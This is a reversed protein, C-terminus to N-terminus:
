LNLFKSNTLIGKNDSIIIIYYGKSLSSIDLRSNTTGTINKSIVQVGDLTFISIKFNDPYDNNINLNLEGNTIINPEVSISNTFGKTDNVGMWLGMLSLYGIKVKSYDITRSYKCCSTLNDYVIDDARYWENDDGVEAVKKMITYIDTLSEDYTVNTVKTESEWLVDDIGSLTKIASEIRNKCISCNGLTTFKVTNKTGAEVLNSSAFTFLAILFYSIYNKM